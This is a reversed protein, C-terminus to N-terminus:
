APSSGFVPLHRPYTGNIAASMARTSCTSHAHTGTVQPLAARASWAPLTSTMRSRPAVGSRARTASKMPGDLRCAKMIIVRLPKVPVVHPSKLLGSIRTAPCTPVVLSVIRFRTAGLAVSIPNAAPMSGDNATEEPRASANRDVKRVPVMACLLFGPM